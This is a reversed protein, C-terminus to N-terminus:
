HVQVGKGPEAAEGGETWELEIELSKKPPKGSRSTEEEVKIELILSAPVQLSIEQGTSTLVINGSEIKDAISRLIQAAQGAEKKEETKFLTKEM